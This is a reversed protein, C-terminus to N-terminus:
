TGEEVAYLMIEENSGEVVLKVQIHNVKYKFYVQMTTLPIAPSVKGYFSSVRCVGSPLDSIFLVGKGKEIPKDFTIVDVGIQSDGVKQPLLEGALHWIKTSVSDKM